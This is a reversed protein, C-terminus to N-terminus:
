MFQPYVLNQCTSAILFRECVSVIRDNLVLLRSVPCDVSSSVCENVVGEGRGEGMARRM